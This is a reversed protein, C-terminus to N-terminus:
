AKKALVRPSSVSCSFVAAQSKRIVWVVVDTFAKPFFGDNVDFGDASLSISVSFRSAVSASFDMRPGSRPYPAIALAKSCVTPILGAVRQNALVM